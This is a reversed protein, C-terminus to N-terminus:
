LCLVRCFQFLNPHIEIAKKVCFDAACRNAKDLTVKPIWFLDQDWTTANPKPFQGDCKKLKTREVSEVEPFLLHTNPNRWDSVAIQQLRKPDLNLTKGKKPTIKVVPLNDLESFDKFHVGCGIAAAQKDKYCFDINGELQQCVPMYMQTLKESESISRHTIPAPAKDPSAQTTMRAGVMFLSMSALVSRLSKKTKPSLFNM